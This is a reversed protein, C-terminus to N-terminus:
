RIRAELHVGLQFRDAIQRAGPSPESSHARRPSRRRPGNERPNRLAFHVSATRGAPTRHGAAADSISRGVPEPANTDNGDTADSGRRARRALDRPASGSRRSHHRRAACVPPRARSGRRLAVLQRARLKTRSTIRCQTQRVIESELSILEWTQPYDERAKDLIAIASKNEHANHRLVALNFAGIWTRPYEKRTEVSNKEIRVLLIEAEKKKGQRYLVDALNNQALPYDPLLQLVRRFIKEAEAYNGRRAYVQGLNTAVRGSAGGAALTHKYFTEEDTWDGSRLFSRVSLGLVAIIALAPVARRYRMPLELACGAIFILLGVSPLYLWHEAVTANLQVINSIPLYAALFWAAGFVRATQGRGKRLSGFVLGAFLLLGLISLYDAHIARRWDSNSRCSMPDFVTREMHLTAPFIMLRGYDGLARAMLAARVPATWGSQQDPQMLRQEPLQRFGFYIMILGLCSLLACVRVRRPLHREIFFLHALFIVIWICAIERSLLALLGSSAALFYILGREIPRMTRQARMFLLWGAAAFFFTLSDARGSIYDVAASHVPHVVWLLAVLFAGHSIWPMRILARDRVPLPAKRLWLSAFLQRLLFYLLIGSGAHLLVNTLHFGFEDTNWFFYDIIFSLNQVPRYHASFSDLFLYHRFSELILLPSKIFPNDHALYADDWICQGQLAPSRVFIGILALLLCRFWNTRFHRAVKRLRSITVSSEMGNAKERNVGRTVLPIAPALM